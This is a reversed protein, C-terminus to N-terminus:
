MLSYALAGIVVVVLILWAWNPIQAVIGEKKGEPGQSYIDYVDKASLMSNTYEVKSIMGSFGGDPSIVLDEQVIAPFGPMVCSSRLRGDVYIDLVQNYQCVVVHVWKQLPFDDVVCKGANAEFATRDAETELVSTEPCACKTDTTGFHEKSMEQFKPILDLMTPNGTSSDVENGSILDFYQGQYKPPINPNNNSLEDLISQPEHVTGCDCTSAGPKGVFQQGAPIDTFSAKSGGSPITTAPITPTSGVTIAPTPAPGATTISPTRAPVSGDTATMLSVNVQLKNDNPHLYIEPNAKSKISGRRMIFKRQGQRYNFDDVYMWFSLAYENSYSSTAMDGSGVEYESTGSHSASLLSKKSIKPKRYAKYYNYTYNFITYLIILLVLGLVIGIVPNSKVTEVPSNVFQTVIQPTTPGASNKRQNNQSLRSTNNSKANNM